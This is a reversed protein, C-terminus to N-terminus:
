TTTAFTGLRLSVTGTTGDTVRVAPRYYDGGGYGFDPYNWQTDVFLARTAATASLPRFADVLPLIGSSSPNKGGTVVLRITHQGEGLGTRRYVVQQYQKAPAYQDVTVDLRGDVFVDILGLNPGHGGLWEVGTGAFTFECWDGATFSFSETDGFDDHTWGEGRAHTWAGQYTISPDSDDIWRPPTRDVRAAVSGDSEVRVGTGDPRTLAYTHVASRLARFDNSERGADDKGYLFYSHTDQSWSWGPRERYVSGAHQPVALATGVPRGIHDDPYVSWLSGARWDIRDAADPAGFRVGLEKYGSGPQESLAKAITYTTTLLGTGDVTVDFVVPSAGHSGSITVVTTSADTRRASISGFTWAPVSGGRVHLHPGDTLVATGGYEARTILGTTKSFAVSFGAGTLTIGTDSEEIAPAPGAPRPLAPAAVPGIPLAYSDVLRDRDDVFDLKLVEGETWSRYPISLKGSAGPKLDIGPMTGQADGVRWRVTLESLDTFDFWNSVPVTLPTRAKQGLLPADPVRVPSYAKKALWYEPKQRRWIDVLGWEATGSVEGPLPFVEDVGGWIAGGAVGYTDHVKPWFRSITEGWFTRVGPDNKLDDVNYAPLHAYEDYLSPKATEGGLQGKVDPYHATFIDYNAGTSYTEAHSYVAPRSPDAAKLYDWQAQPNAGWGINENGMSWILVCAHDRDREVMEALQGLWDQKFAPDDLLNDHGQQNVWCVATEEEVYMGYRDAADLLAETPPYHSTRILNVNAEKFLRVDQEDWRGTAGRGMTPSVQHHAVGRLKVERGNVLLRKGDVRIQRFGVKRTVTSGAGEPGATLELTYLNPHEADWKLPAAVELDVHTAGDLTLSRSLVEAGTPNRLVLRVPLTGGGAPTLRLGLVADRYRTDFTTSVHVSTLHGAPVAILRVDGLIGGIRHRAYFTEYSLDQWRDTVGVTVWADTGPTVHDTIDAQWSTFGGRHDRVHVGNIWLRADSYVGDFRLVIRQGAFDAPVPVKTRYAFEKDQPVDVGQMAPEGPVEIRPWGSSDVDDRWFEAPPEVAISWSGNLSLVPERVGAVTDPVPTLTVTPQPLTGAPTGAGAGGVTGPVATATGSGLPGAVVGAVVATGAMLFTRRRTM